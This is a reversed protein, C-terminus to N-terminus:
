GIFESLRDEYLAHFFGPHPTSIAVMWGGGRLCPLSATYADSFEDQFAAEDSIIGSVTNTRIIQGGQPIAFLTSNMAPVILQNSLMEVKPVLWQRGPIHNFIFKCRGLLGNGSTENGIADEERKSQLVIFQGPRVLVCWLAIMCAWWTVIMQRSKAIVLKRNGQWLRTLEVIHPREAPFPKIPDEFDHQDVTWVFHRGFDLPDRRALEWRTRL